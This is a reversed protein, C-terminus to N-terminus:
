GAPGSSRVDARITRLAARMIHAVFPRILCWYRAMRRRSDMDTTATRCEYTLVSRDAGDPRVLFHCVVKGWGPEDFETFEEKPVDRWSIQSQWFRGVAGFVVEQGEVEGLKVWGPIGPELGALRLEPPRPPLKGRLRAPAARVFMAATLLPSRVKLFDLNVAAEYTAGTGAEIVLHETLVLDYVPLFRDIMRGTPVAAGVDSSAAFSM